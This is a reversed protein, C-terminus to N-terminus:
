TECPITVTFTSGKGPESEVEVKGGLTETFKKVIYLGLGAGGYGRKASSDVQRFMDFIIPLKEQPIGIGTDAVKFEIWRDAEASPGGGELIRASVTVHGKATFKIANNILNQVIHRLKTSDTKILAPLHSPFDWILKLEKDLPTDYLSKLEELFNGLHFDQDHLSVAGADIKTADLISEIMALLDSSYKVIKGLAKEHDPLIKDRIMGAYGMVVNLPTKLEHSMVGLFESKVKNAKELEEAQRKTQEYLQSNHIALAAQGALTILFEIEENNFGRERGMYFSLVGLVEGKAVLPVGLYSVLGQRRFFEPDQTRPDSQLNEVILPTQIEVVVRDLDRGAEWEELRWEKEDLNRCATLELSGSERNFLRVTSAPSHPLFLDIKELLLELVSRLELTSIIALHIEHLARIREQQRTLQEHAYKQQQRIEAERLEREAAPVLRKLNGKIIYDHAGAKMAAVATDEGITGSVFIFPIDLGAKNLLELADTGRFHPMTYDAFVIDWRQRALAASMIKASDVREVQPEYGGRQLERVLLLADDESDEVILARLPRAM